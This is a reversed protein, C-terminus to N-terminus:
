PQASAQVASDIADLLERAEYPKQLIAEVAADGLRQAVDYPNFGSAVVVPVDARVARLRALAEEGGMQPMTLDLVVCDFKDPRKTFLAVAEMGTAAPVVEYGSRGLLQVAVERVAPEDDVLLVLGERRTTDAPAPQAAPAQRERADEVPVPLWLKICTGSGPESYVNIAGHHAKVIGHVASMGLGRGTFKTTFFPEFLRERVEGDMGCGTDSFELTVYHGSLQEDEDFVGDLYTQECHQAETHVRLVGGDQGLAEAANAVLNM